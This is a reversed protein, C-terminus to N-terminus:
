PKTPGRVGARLPSALEEEWPRGNRVSSPDPASRIRNATTHSWSGTGGSEFGDVFVVAARELVAQAIAALDVNDIYPGRVPDTKVALQQLLETGPGRAYFPILTNTHGASCWSWYVVEGPDIRDNPPSDDVWSARLGSGLDIKELLLTAATVSGPALLQDPFVGPASTLYGTEHDGTVVVLTNDWSSSNSPDDVWDVVVEVADNFDLLEGIMWEMDNAHAAWDVAGGEIMLVFGDNARELVTLAAEASEALSPTELRYGGAPSLVKLNARDFLGALMTTAPDAAADLLATGGDVGTEGEVLLHKGAIGSELFLKDRQLPHIYGDGRTGILVETVPLTPGFGGDYKPDVAITGTTNPDGFLAEDAIAYTNARSLNHSVYAAPTAHSAPVTTVAGVAMGLTRAREGVSALREVGGSDVSIRGNSTKSGTAMATAAAASDTTGLLPYTFISWTLTGEYRGGAPFTSMWLRSWGEDLQYPPTTQAYLNAAQIHLPGWGDCILVIIFWPTGSPRSRCLSRRALSSTPAQSIERPGPASCEVIIELKPLAVPGEGKVRRGMVELAIVNEGRLLEHRIGTLDLQYGRVQGYAADRQYPLPRPSSVIQIGNLFATFPADAAIELTILNVSEPDSVVVIRRLLLSGWPGTPTGLQAIFDIPWPDSSVTAWDTDDFGIDTWGPPPQDTHARYRWQGDDTAACGDAQERAEATGAGAIMTAAILCCRLLASMLSCMTCTSVWRETYPGARMM